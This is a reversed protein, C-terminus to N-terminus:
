MVKNMHKYKMYVM